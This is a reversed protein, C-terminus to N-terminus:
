RIFVRDRQGPFALLAEIPAEGEEFLVGVTAPSTGPLALWSWLLMFRGPIAPPELVLPERTQSV